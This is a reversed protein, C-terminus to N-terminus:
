QNYLSVTGDPAIRVVLLNAPDFHDEEKTCDIGWVEIVNGPPVKLLFEHMIYKEIIKKHEVEIWKRPLANNFWPEKLNKLNQGNKDLLAKFEEDRITRLRYDGTEYGLVHTRIHIWEEPGRTSMFYGRPSFKSYKPPTVIISRGALFLGGTGCTIGMELAREDLTWASGM